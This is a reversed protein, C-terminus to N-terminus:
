PHEIDAGTPDNVGARREFPDPTAWVVGHRFPGLQQFRHMGIVPLASTRVHLVILRLGAVLGISDDTRVAGYLPDVIAGKRHEIPRTLEVPYGSNGFVDRLM